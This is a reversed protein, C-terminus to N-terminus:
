NASAEALIERFEAEGRYPEYVINVALYQDVWSGDELARRLWQFAEDRAGMLAYLSALTASSLKGRRALDAMGDPVTGPGGGERFILIANAMERVMFVPLGEVAAWQALDMHFGVDEGRDLAVMAAGFHASALNFNLTIARAFEADAAETDGSWLLINGYDTGIPGSMPDLQAARGIDARAAELQGMEALVNGRWHLAPAYSPNLAIAQGLAELAGARDRQLARVLGLSAHAEALDPDLALARRAWSEARAWEEQPDATPVFQPLLAYSDALGAMAEPYLSDISLALDFARIAAPVGTPGRRNWEARGRWYAEQAEQAVVHRAPRSSPIDLLGLLEEAIAQAISDQVAFLDEMEQDFTGSWDHFGTQTEILQATVRIREGERRISGELLHNVGLQQGIVRADQTSDRFAFSSTRAAVRLGEVGALVNLIEEAIGDGLYAQDGTASMDAFPLVAISAGHEVTVSGGQALAGIDAGRVAYWGVFGLCVASVLVVGLVPVSPTLRADVPSEADGDAPPTWVLGDKSVDFVWSLAMVIPFLGLLGALLVRMADDGLGFAPFLIEALQLLVFGAAAYAAATRVVRRRRLEAWISKYRGM